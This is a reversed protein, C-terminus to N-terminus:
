VPSLKEGDIDLKILIPLVYNMIDKQLNELIKKKVFHRHVVLGVTRYPVPSKFQSVHRKEKKSFDHVALYPLLTAADNAKVFRLLGDISGAQYEFNLRSNILKKNIDCLQLVQKRM